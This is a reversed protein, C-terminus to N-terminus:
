LNQLKEVMRAVSMTYTTDAVFPASPATAGEPAVARETGNEDVKVGLNLPEAWTFPVPTALAYNTNTGDTIVNADSEDGAQYARTGVRITGGEKTAEDQAVPCSQLGNPFPVNGDTDKRTTIGLQLTRKWYPFYQGNIAPNSLNICIDHKYTAGYESSTRIKFFAAGSPSTQGILISGLSIFEKNANYWYIALGTPSGVGIYETNPFCPMFNKSRICNAMPIPEGTQGNISGEEWEEDWQNVGTTEVAEADNSILTGANYPYYADPYLAEFEEVTAPENGAGFMQTIDILQFHKGTFGETTGEPFDRMLFSINRNTENSATTFLYRYSVFSNTMSPNSVNTSWGSGGSSTFIYVRLSDCLRKGVFSLLYKHSPLIRVVFQFGSFSGSLNSVTIEDGSIALQAVGISNLMASDYLNCQQNWALTKGKIKRYYAGGDGGSKRFTFEQETGVGDTDIVAEALGAEDALVAIEEQVEAKTALDTLAVGGDVSSGGANMVAVNGAVADTDKPQKTAIINALGDVASELADFIGGSTVPNPSDETPTNDFTLTDQKGDLLNDTETKTYTTSKDAKLDLATKVAGSTIANRSNATPATDYAFLTYWNTTNNVSDYVIVSVGAADVEITSGNIEYEGEAVLFFTNQTVAVSAGDALPAGYFAYGALTDQKLQNIVNVMALLDDQLIQGTIEQRYNTKITAQLTAILTSFDAM